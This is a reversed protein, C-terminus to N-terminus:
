RGFTADTRHQKVFREAQDVIDVGVQESWAALLQQTIPGPKGDGIARKDVKTVPLVSFPTSSFFAEDATYLDYPQLAEESVTLGLQKAVKFVAMRSVGQLIDSDGPTRIVGNSVLFLNYGVGETLNGSTDTLVPWGKPDIDGAELEALNFNMRSHHKIKPDVMQPSYSRTRAIVAHAGPKYFDAFWAWPNTGVEIIVTAPGASHAWRGPGRTIAHWIFFDGAQKLMHQNRKLADETVDTMEQASMGVDIRAYKMSRYLRDVHEKLMFSKGNFTRTVDFVTDGVRFGRDSVDVKLESRPIWKGSLYAVYGQQTM